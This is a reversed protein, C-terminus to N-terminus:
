TTINKYYTKILLNLDKTSVIQGELYEQPANEKTVKFNSTSLIFDNAFANFYQLSNKAYYLELSTNASYASSPNLNVEAFTPQNGLFAYIFYSNIDQQYQVGVAGAVGNYKSVNQNKLKYIATLSQIYSCVETEINMVFISPNSAEFVLCVTSPSINDLLFIEKFNITTYRAIPGGTDPHKPTSWSSMEDVSTTYGGGSLGAIWKATGTHYYISVPYEKTQGGFDSNTLSNVITWGQAFNTTALNQLDLDKYAIQGGQGCVILKEQPKEWNNTCVVDSSLGTQTWSTVSTSYKTRFEESFTNWNNTLYEIIHTHLWPNEAPTPLYSTLKLFALADASTIPRTGGSNNIDGRIRTEGAPAVGFVNYFELDIGVSDARILRVALRLMSQSIEAWNFNTPTELFPNIANWTVGDTSEACKGGQGFILFKGVSGGFFTQIGCTIKSTTGWSTGTLGSTTDTWTVGYDDSIAVRPYNSAFAVLRGSAAGGKSLIFNLETKEPYVYWCDALGTSLLWNNMTTTTLSGNTYEKYEYQDEFGEQTSGIVINNLVSM